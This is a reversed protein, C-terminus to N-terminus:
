SLSLIAALSALVEPFLREILANPFRKRLTLELDLRVPSKGEILLFKLSPKLSIPEAEASLQYDM